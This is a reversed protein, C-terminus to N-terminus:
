KKALFDQFHFFIGRYSLLFLVIWFIFSTTLNVKKNYDTMLEFFDLLQDLQEMTPDFHLSKCDEIFQSFSDM